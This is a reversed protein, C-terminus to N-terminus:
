YKLNLSAFFGFPAGSQYTSSTGDAALANDASVITAIYEENTLNTATVRFLTSKSGFIQPAKYAVDLDVLTFPDLKQTNAVDGYRSSTYRASPTFTWEGLYYSLAAKAMFEPTDPLQNGKISTTATPSSQFDETFSYKNYSLSALFELEESILGNAGLEAGYGFAKGVNAPYNVGKASDYINAQKNNVFSVFISPTLTVAGLTTKVGLDINDSTELNLDDWLSQLTVNNAKFAAENSVYTPFLNVDFGYTRSYDIYVSDSQSLDYGLYFSPILTQFTKADVSAWTDLTATALATDYDKSTASTTGTYSKIAGITFSQYQLGLSYHLTNTDGSLEVFPAQLVHYDADALIGYGKYVLNGSGDVAYKKQDTPPGPPLQKHYWYGITSKLAQSFTHEYSTVAGFLDHEMQWNMVMPTNNKTKSFWYEGEDKKYYPKFIIKDNKSAKFEIDALFTTTDFSQKNWDYYNNTQTTPKTTAYDTNFYTGLDIAQTYSLSKYNHHTDANRIMYLDAKFRENPKYSIGLMGNIRKQGGAGKTKDNQLASLSGFMSFDGMKGSDFRVFTKLFANSGFSQSINTGTKNKAELINMDIKGILSSFGLNKDVSLYGKHLDISAINEMDLMLKGGGPNSSVPMDNIMYVGGPGSQSKGRIRIPDHFSPENSGTQDVPTFNVSPSFQIVTYPNMNAQTSLTSISKQTFNQKNEKSSSNSDALFMGAEEDEISSNVMIKEVSIPAANLATIAVLSLISIHLKM